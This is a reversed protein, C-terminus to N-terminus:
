FEEAEVIYALHPDLNAVMPEAELLDRYFDPLNRGLVRVRVWCNDVYHVQLGRQKAWEALEGPGCREALHGLNAVTPAALDARELDETRAHPARIRLSSYTLRSFGYPLARPLWGLLCVHRV